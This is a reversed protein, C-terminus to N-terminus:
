LMLDYSLNIQFNFEELGLDSPIPEFPEASAVADLAQDNLVDYRSPEALDLRIVRGSRDVVVHLLVEGEMRRSFAKFPMTQYTRIARELKEQYAQRALILSAADREAAASDSSTLALATNSQGAQAGIETAVEGPSQPEVVDQDIPEVAEPTAATSEIEAPADASGANASTVSAEPSVAGTLTALEARNPDPQLAAFTLALDLDSRERLLTRKFESSLPVNGLFGRLMFLGLQSGPFQIVPLMNLQLVTGQDPQYDIQFRDGRALDHELYEYLQMLNDAEANQDEATVNIAISERWLRSFRRQSVFEAEIALKLTFPSEGQLVQDTAKTTPLTALQAIFVPRNYQEYRAYHNNEATAAVCVQTVSFMLVIAIYRIM